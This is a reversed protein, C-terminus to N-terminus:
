KNACKETESNVLKKVRKYAFKCMKVFLKFFNQNITPLDLTLIVEDLIKFVLLQFLGFSFIGSTRPSSLVRSTPYTEAAEM